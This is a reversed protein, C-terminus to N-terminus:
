YTGYGGGFSSGSYGSSYGSSYGGSSGGGSYGGLSGGGSYSSGSYTIGTGYRRKDREGYSRDYDDPSYTVHVSPTDSYTVQKKKTM